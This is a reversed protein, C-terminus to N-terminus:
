VSLHRLVVRFKMGYSFESGIIGSSYTKTLFSCAKLCDADTSTKFETCLEISPVSNVALALFSGKKMSSSPDIAALLAM